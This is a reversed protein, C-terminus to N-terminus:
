ELVLAYAVAEELSMARGETWAAAFTEEGLRGRALAVDREHDDHDVPDSGYALTEMLPAAAAFLRAARRTHGEALALRALGWVNWLSEGRDNVIQGLALSERFLSRAQPRDNQGLAVLGLNLLALAVGGRNDVERHLALSEYYFAAAQENARQGRAVEGLSNLVSAEDRRDKLERVLALTEQFFATAKGYDRRGKANRGLIFLLRMKMRRDGTKRALALGRNSLETTQADDGKEMAIWALGHYLWTLLPKDDLQGALTLGEEWLSLATVPDGKFRRACWGLWCLSRAIGAKDDLQRYLTLSEQLLATSDNEWQEVRLWGTNLLLRARVPPAVDNRRELAPDLWRRGERLHCRMMWFGALATALRLGSELDGDPKELSWALAARLNDHESELRDLWAIQEEGYLRPEATEALQLFFDLHRNQVPGAESREALKEWAYQRITELLFYRAERAPERRVVLLSKHVLQALHGLVQSPHLNDHRGDSGQDACIAEVAELNFRGAFVSLRRLLCQEASTLLDYSWDILARLTQQRPLAARSGGALLQFRNDLRAAIQEVRLMQVRVAALEIALPMGDLRRCVQEVMAANQNTLTFAPLAVAAREVFLRIADAQKFTDLSAQQGPKPLYLPPVQWVAEGNINLVERSTTLIQLHPCHRLLAGALQAAAEILHECNDLVLLLQKKHLYDQLVNLPPRKEEQRVGLASLVTEPVLAAASLPAFEVFWVGDAFLELVGAAAQLALRTKGSGGAGTLTVLREASLLRSVEALERERGIFSSLQLPLNHRPRQIAISQGGADRGPRVATDEVMEGRALREYLARTQSSPEIDLERKLVLACREYQRLAASRDGSAGFLSILQRHVDEALEDTTLYQGACRIAAEYERAKRKVQILRGLLALYLREFRHQEDRLWSEYEQSDALALGSLFPGRYLAVAEELGVDDDREVLSLLTDSDSWVAAPSLRLTGPQASLFPDEPLAKRIYSLLRSLNQRAITEEMDPWFLFVLENRAVPQRDVALRYLLARAQRRPLEFHKGQWTIM